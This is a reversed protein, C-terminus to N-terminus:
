YMIRDRMIEPYKRLKKALLSAYVDCEDEERKKDATPINSLTEFTFCCTIKKWADHVKHKQKHQKDMVDWIVKETELLELFQITIENSWESPM